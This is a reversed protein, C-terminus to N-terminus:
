WPGCARASPGVPAPTGTPTIESEISWTPPPIESECPVPSRGPGALEGAPWTVVSLSEGPPSSSPRAMASIMNSSAGPILFMKKEVPVRPAAVFACDILLRTAWPTFTIASSVKSGVSGSKWSPM